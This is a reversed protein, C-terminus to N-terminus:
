KTRTCKILFKERVKEYLGDFARLDAANPLVDPFVGTEAHLAQAYSLQHTTARAASSRASVTLDFADGCHGHKLARDALRLQDLASKV